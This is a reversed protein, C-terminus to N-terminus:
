SRPGKEKDTPSAALYRLRSRAYEENKPELLLARDISRLADTPRGSQFYAEALLAQYPAVRPDQKVVEEAVTVAETARGVALCLRALAARYGVEGPALEVAAALHAQAEQKRASAELALGLYYHAEADDPHARVLAGFAEVAARDDGEALALRGLERRASEDEPRLELARGLAKRAEASKGQGALCRGLHLWAQADEPQRQLLSRLLPEAEEYEQRAVLGRALNSLVEADRVGAALASRYHGIAEGLAGARRSAHGLYVALLPSGVGEGQAEQLHTRARQIAGAHYFAIGARLHAEGRAPAPLEEFGRSELVGFWHASTSYERLELAVAALNFLTGASVGPLGAARGLAREAESVEGEMWLLAGLLAWAEGDSPALATVRRLENVADGRDDLQLHAVALNYHADAWQPSLSVAQSLAQRAGPWDGGSLAKTGADFARRASQPPPPEGVPAWPLLRPTPATFTAPPPPPPPTTPDADAPPPALRRALERPSLPTTEGLQERASDYWEKWRAVQGKRVLASTRPSFPLNQGSLQCLARHSRRRTLDSPDELAALLGGCAGKAGLEGLALAAHARVYPSPDHALLWLLAPTARLDQLRGLAATAYDRVEEADDTVARLLAALVRGDALEGLAFAVYARVQPDRDGLATLLAPVAGRHGLSGLALAAQRRVLPSDDALCGELAERARPDGIRGLITALAARLEGDSDALAAVLEAVAEGGLERLEDAAQDRTEPGDLRRILQAIRTSPPTPGRAPQASVLLCWGLLVGQALWSIRSGTFM